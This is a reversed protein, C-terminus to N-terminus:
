GASSVTPQIASTTSTHPIAKNTLYAGHSIALLAVMSQDLVPFANIVKGHTVFLDGLAVGYAILLVITFYFMQIRGMDLHAGNGTEEGTFLDAWSASRPDTKILVQGQATVAGPSIARRDTLLKATTDLAAQNSPQGKKVGLILPSGVLSTTSIGMVLWLQQPLSIALPNPFNGSINALAAILIASLILITWLVLQLRSLSIKNNEDILAGRWLGTIGHGAVFVFAALLAMTVLWAGLTYGDNPPPTDRLRPLLGLGIIGIVIVLLALTHQPTWLPRKPSSVAGADPVTSMTSDM